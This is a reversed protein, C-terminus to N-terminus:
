PHARIVVPEVQMHLSKNVSVRSINSVNVGVLKVGINLLAHIIIRM